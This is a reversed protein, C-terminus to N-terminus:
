IQDAIINEPSNKKGYPIGVQCILRSYSGPLDCGESYKGKNVAFLIAGGM